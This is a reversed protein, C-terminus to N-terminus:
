QEEKKIKYESSIWRVYTKDYVFGEEQGKLVLHAVDPFVTEHQDSDTVVFIDVDLQFFYQGSLLSDPTKAIVGITKTVFGDKYFTVNYISGLDLQLRYSGNVNNVFEDVLQNDKVIEIRVDKVKSNENEVRGHITLTGTQAFILASFLILLLTYIYKM